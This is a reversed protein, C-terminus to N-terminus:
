RMACRVAMVEGGDGSLLKFLERLPKQRLWGAKIKIGSLPQM